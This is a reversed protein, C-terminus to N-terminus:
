PTKQEVEKIEEDSIETLSYTDFAPTGPLRFELRDIKKMRVDGRTMVLGFVHGGRRRDESLFHLHWGPANIGSMYDPFYVGVLSGSIKEFIFEKQNKSLIEKLSVHHARLPAESRASIREFDGDIRVMYMSNLGFEEEIKLDLLQTLM